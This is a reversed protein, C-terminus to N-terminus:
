GRCEAPRYKAILTGGTCNWTIPQGIAFTPVFTITGGGAAATTTMTIAGSGDEAIAIRAINTTAPPSVYGTAAQNAPLAGNSIATESVALKAAAGLSLGEAVRTRVTYDQYAPIAVAALIGIIAVVIMLEILTFGRERMAREGRLHCNLIFLRCVVYYKRAEVDMGVKDMVPHSM